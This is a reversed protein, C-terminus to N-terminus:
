LFLVGMYHIHESVHVCVCMCVCVCVCVCARVCDAFMDTISISYCSPFIHYCKLTEKCTMILIEPIDPSRKVACQTPDEPIEAVLSVTECWMLGGSGYLACQLWCMPGGSSYLACQLWCMPGGSSYLTCQLWCMPGGSSYLACQLWCMPGGSSYLTCQLWCMLGGSSYLACQLWCMPCGSSYLTGWCGTLCFAILLICVGVQSLYKSIHEAKGASEPESPVLPISPINIPKTHDEDEAYNLRRQATRGEGGGVDVGGGTVAQARVLAPSPQSLTYSGRRVHGKHTQGEGTDRSGQGALDKTSVAKVHRSSQHQYASQPPEPPLKKPKRTPVAGSKEAGGEDQPEVINLPLSNSSDRSAAAAADEILTSNSSESTAATADSRSSGQSDTVSASNEPQSVGAASAAKHALRLGSSNTGADSMKNAQKADNEKDSSSPDAKAYSQFPLSPQNPPLTPTAPTDSEALSVNCLLGENEVSERDAQASAAASAADSKGGLKNGAAQDAPLKKKVVTINESSLSASTDIYETVFSAFHVTNNRLSRPSSRSSRHSDTTGTTNASSMGSTNASGSFNCDGQSMEAPSGDASNDIFGSTTNETANDATVEVVTDQSEHFFSGSVNDLASTGGNRVKDEWRPDGVCESLPLESVDSGGTSNFDKVKLIKSLRLLDHSIKQQKVSTLPVGNFDTPLAEEISVFDSCVSDLTQLGFEEQGQEAMAFTNALSSAGMASVSEMSQASTATGGSASTSGWATTVVPKLVPPRELPLRAAAAKGAKAEPPPVPAQLFCCEATVPFRETRVLSSVM